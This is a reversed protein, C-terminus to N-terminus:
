GYLFPQADVVPIWSRSTSSLASNFFWNCALPMDDCQLFRNFVNVVLEERVPEVHSVAPSASNEEVLIGEERIDLDLGNVEVIGPAFRRILHHFSVLPHTKCPTSDRAEKRRCARLPWFFM